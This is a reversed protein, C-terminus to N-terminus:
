TFNMSRPRVPRKTAMSGTAASYCRSDARFMLGPVYSLCLPRLDEPREAKEEFVTGIRFRAIRSKAGLPGIGEVRLGPTPDIM